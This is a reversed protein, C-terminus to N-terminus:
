YFIILTKEKMHMLKYCVRFLSNRSKLNTPLVVEATLLLMVLYLHFIALSTSKISSTELALVEIHLREQQMYITLLHVVIFFILLSSHLYITCLYKALSLCLTRM